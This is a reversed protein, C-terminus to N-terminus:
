RRSLSATIAGIGVLILVFAALSILGKALDDWADEELLTRLETADEDTLGYAYAQERLYDRRAAKEPPLSGSKEKNVPGKMLEDLKHIQLWSSLEQVAQLSTELGKFQGKFQGKLEAVDREVNRVVDGAARIASDRIFPRFALMFGILPIIIALIIPWLPQEM